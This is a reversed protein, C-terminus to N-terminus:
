FEEFIRWRLTQGRNVSHDVWEEILEPIRVDLQGVRAVGVTRGPLQWVQEIESVVTHGSGIYGHSVQSVSRWFQRDCRVEVVLEDRGVELGDQGRLTEIDVIQLRQRLVLHHSAQVSVNRM